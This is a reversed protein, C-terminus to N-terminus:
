VADFPNPEHYSLNKEYRSIASFRFLRFILQLRRLRSQIPIYPGAFRNDGAAVCVAFNIPAIALNSLPMSIERAVVSTTSAPM